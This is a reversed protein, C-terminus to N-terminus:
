NQCCASSLQPLSLSSLKSLKSTWLPVVVDALAALGLLPLALRVLPYRGLHLAPLYQVPEVTQEPCVGDGGQEGSIQQVAPRGHNVVIDVGVAPGPDEELHGDQKDGHHTTQEKGGVGVVNKAKNVTEFM